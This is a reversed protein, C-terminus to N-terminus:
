TVWLRSVFLCPPKDLLPELSSLDEMGCTLCYTPNFCLQFTISPHLCHFIFGVSALWLVTSIVVEIRGLSPLVLSYLDLVELESYPCLICLISVDLDVYKYSRWIMVSFALVHWLFSCHHGYCFIIYASNYVHLYDMQVLM